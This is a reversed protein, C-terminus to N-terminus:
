KKMGEIVQKAELVNNTPVYIVQLCRDCKMKCKIGDKTILATYGCEPCNVSVFTQYTYKDAM